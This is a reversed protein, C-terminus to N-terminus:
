VESLDAVLIDFLLRNRVFIFVLESGQKVLGRALEQPKTIHSVPRDPAPLLVIALARCSSNTFAPM